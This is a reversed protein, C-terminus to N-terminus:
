LRDMRPFDRTIPLKKLIEPIKSFGRRKPQKIRQTGELFGITKLPSKLL